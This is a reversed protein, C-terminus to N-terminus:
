CRVPGADDAVFAVASSPTLISVTAKISKFIRDRQQFSHSAQTKDQLLTTISDISHRRQLQIPLWNDRDTLTIGSKKEYDQLASELLAHFHALASQDIMNRTPFSHPRHSSPQNESVFRRRSLPAHHTSSQPNLPFALASGWRGDIHEMNARLCSTISHSQDPSLKFYIPALRSRAGFHKITTGKINTVFKNM